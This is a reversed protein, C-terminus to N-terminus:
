ASEKKQVIRAKRSIGQRAKSVLTWRTDKHNAGKDWAGSETLSLKQFESAAQEAEAALGKGFVGPATQRFRDPVQPGARFPRDNLISGRM